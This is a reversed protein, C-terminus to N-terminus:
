QCAELGKVVNIGDEIGTMPEKDERICELFHIAENMLPESQDDVEIQEIGEDHHEYRHQGSPLAWKKHHLLYNWSLDWELMGKEGVAHLTRVRRPHSWSLFASCQVEGYMATVFSIDQHPSLDSKVTLPYGGCLYSFIAFDHPMLDKVLGIEQYLGFNARVTYITRLKGVISLCDKFKRIAPHYLFTHGVMVRKKLREAEFKIRFCDELNGALPKEIFVHLGAKMAAIAVDAHTSPPTAVLVGALGIDFMEEISSCLLVDSERLQFKVAVEDLRKADQECVAGLVGLQKLVRVWNPGWYGGAGVIGLKM